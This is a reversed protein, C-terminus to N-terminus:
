WGAAFASRRRPEAAGVWLGGPSRGISPADAIHDREKFAYGMAELGRRTGEDLGNPESMVEDPLHQHHLRPANVAAAPAMGFDVVNSVIQFVASIITPGGAAGTVLRVGQDPGIVITPSMSSLMRKGPAIANPEGQVLGFGNATGPKSAFDDMENNLLFGAGAVTVGSGFWWNLTTTLGAANGEADVVSFHTTNPGEGSAPAGEVESSPTARGERITARQRAAWAPSLLEDLPNKVFDPDGLRANRAAFARRMAEVELQVHRPTHWGIAGLDYPELVHAIMALTVGGSSPPPMSVVRHGRYEFAIPTRWKARYALLDQATILGGGAEMEKVLLAATEGEYFGKPGREAIRRLTRGLDPNKVTAGVAPAEGNALFTAAAAPYKKLRKAVADLAKHLAEDVVFGEEALKIAPAVLEDWRKKKSGLRQHAEWLGAVSGPVGSARHGMRVTDSVKGDVVFADRTAKAPAAERFDLAHEQGGVRAVLFGGGGVNGASPYVVALAFATAVAADVANGGSALVQQGVKSALTADSSVMGRGAAVGPADAPYPWGPPFTPAPRAAVPRASSPAAPQRPPPAPRPAECGAFAFAALAALVFRKM